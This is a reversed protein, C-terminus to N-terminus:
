QDSIEDVRLKLEKAFTAIGYYAKLENYFRAFNPLLFEINEYRLM